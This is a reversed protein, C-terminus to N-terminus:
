KLACSILVRFVLKPHLCLFSSSHKTGESNHVLYTGYEIYVDLFCLCYSDQDLGVSFFCLNHSSTILSWIILTNWSWEFPLLTSCDNRVCMINNYDTHHIDQQAQCCYSDVCPLHTAISVLLHFFFGHVVIYHYMNKIYFQQRLYLWCVHLYLLLLLVISVSCVFHSDSVYFLLYISVQSWKVSQKFSWKM